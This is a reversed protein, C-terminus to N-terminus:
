HLQAQQPQGLALLCEGIEEEGFGEQDGGEGLQALLDSQLVLAEKLRGLSRLARGVCWTAVRVQTPQGQERQWTLASQFYSLAHEHNGQDHYVWGINNYLSGLWGRARPQDSNQALAV